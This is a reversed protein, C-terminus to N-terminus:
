AKATEKAAARNRLRDLNSVAKADDQKGETKAATSRSRSRAAPKAEPEAQAEAQVANDSSGGEPEGADGPQGGRM